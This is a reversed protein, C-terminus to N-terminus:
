AIITVKHLDDNFRKIIVQKACRISGSKELVNYIYTTNKKFFDVDTVISAELQGDSLFIGLNDIYQQIIGNITHSIWEFILSANPVKQTCQLDFILLVYM